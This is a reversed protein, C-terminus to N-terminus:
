FDHTDTPVSNCHPNLSKETALKDGVSSAFAQHQVTIGVPMVAAVIAIISLKGVISYLM